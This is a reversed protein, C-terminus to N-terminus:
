CCSPSAESAESTMPQTRKSQGHRLQMCINMLSPMTATEHEKSLKKDRKHQKGRTLQALVKINQDYVARYFQKQINTLACEVVVETRPPLNKEVHEKMRRLLYPRLRRHLEEIQGQAHLAGFESLFTDLRKFENPAITHLLSWLETLNNQLPTGTLLVVHQQKLTQMVMTLKAEPNKSRQAEDVCVLQWHMRNLMSSENILTTYSCIMVDFRYATKVTKPRGDVEFAHLEYERFVARSNKDSDLV